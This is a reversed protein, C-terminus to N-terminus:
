CPKHHLHRHQNAVDQFDSINFTDPPGDYLITNNLYVVRSAINLISDLEHSIMIITIQQSQLKKLLSYFEVQSQNDIGTTPEDLILIDAHSALARAINVRQQQGGSLESFNQNELNEINLERLCDLVLKKDGRAGLSVVERVSIPVVSAVDERNQKIYGIRVNKNIQIHGSKPELLNLILKLLTTKGAGNPGLLSIFESEHVCLAINSLITEGSYDFSLDDIDILLKNAHYPPESTKSIRM